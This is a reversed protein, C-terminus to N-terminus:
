GGKGRARAMPGQGRDGRKRLAKGLGGLLSSNFGSVYPVGKKRGPRVKGRSPCRALPCEPCLPGVPRCTERGFLVFLENIDLWFRKPISERLAEETREPTKTKVWGLRNSIRHVHTDVPIAPVGFGYVLVCNATKRGVGPLALLKEMDRPVEGGFDSLLRRSIEIITPAKQRYFGAPRILATVREPSAGALSAANPFAAFLNKAAKATKEERTRQSLVTAILTQFPDAAGGPEPPFRRRLARVVESPTHVRRDGGSM